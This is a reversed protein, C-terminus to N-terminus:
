IQRLLPDSSFELGIRAARTASSERLPVEGTTRNELAEETGSLAMNQCFCGRCRTQRTNETGTSHQHFASNM